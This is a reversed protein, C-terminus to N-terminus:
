PFPPQAPHSPLSLISFQSLQQHRLFYFLVRSASHLSFSSVARKPLATPDYSDMRLLLHFIAQPSERLSPTYLLKKKEKNNIQIQEENM